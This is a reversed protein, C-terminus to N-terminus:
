MEIEDNDFHNENMKNYSEFKDNLSETESNSSDFSVKDGNTKIFVDVIINEYERLISRIDEKWQLVSESCKESNEVTLHKPNIMNIYHLLKDHNGRYNKLLIELENRLMLLIENITSEACRKEWKRESTYVFMKQTQNPPYYINHHHPRKPNCHITKFLASYCDEEPQLFPSFEHMEMSYIHCVYTYPVLHELLFTTMDMQDTKRKPHADSRTKSPFKRM